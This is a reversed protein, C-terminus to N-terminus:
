TKRKKVEKQCDMCLQEGYNEMSFDAIGETIKTDKGHRACRECIRSEDVSKSPKAKTDLDLFSNFEINVMDLLDKVADKNTKHEVLKANIRASLINSCATNINMWAIRRDKLEWNVDDTM